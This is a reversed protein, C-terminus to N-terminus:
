LFMCWVTHGKGVPISALPLFADGIETFNLNGAIRGWSKEREVIRWFGCRKKSFIFIKQSAKVNNDNACEVCTWLFVDWDQDFKSIELFPVYAISWLPEGLSQSGVKPFCAILTFCYCKCPLPFARQKLRIGLSLKRKFTLCKNLKIEKFNEFNTPLPFSNTKSRAFIKCFTIGLLPCAQSPFRTRDTFSSKKLLKKKGPSDRECLIEMPISPTQKEVNPSCRCDKRLRKELKRFVSPFVQNKVCLHFM